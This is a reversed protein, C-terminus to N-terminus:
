FAQPPGDPSAVLARDARHLDAEGYTLLSSSARRPKRREDTEAVVLAVHTLLSSSERRPKRSM